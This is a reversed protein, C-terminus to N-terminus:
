EALAAKVAEYANVVGHGYINNPVGTTDGCNQDSEKPEATNRIIEATREINGILKPNASWMLAVLGAVHPGAMSTGSWGGAYNNGPIASRISVGPASVDPGIQGDFLSPGRSSFSAIKGTRHNLAGVSFTDLSHTAPQDNITKCNAGENGASVVVMMGAAALSKLVPLFESGECGESRPCGWSNNIVHPAKTPDGDMMPDKGQAYPALFFEFCEIYTTPAGFGADMNRCSIFQAEPAMGIQNKSGDDGVMTGITHTGHQDDDCPTALDYGCSNGNGSTLPSHISDHWSLSHDVQEGDFGRYKNKLAPHDWQVGTDQSAVLIGKGRINLENWVLDAKVSVLSSEIGGELLGAARDLDDTILPEEFKINPNLIVKAVDDRKAIEKLLSSGPDFVAVMNSIYFRQYKVKNAALTQLLPPQTRQAVERLQNFVFTGKEEKTTLNKAESLDAQEALVIIAGPINGGQDIIQLLSESIKQEPERTAHTELTLFIGCGLILSLILGNIIKM